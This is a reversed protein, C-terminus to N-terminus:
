SELSIHCRFLSYTPILISNQPFLCHFSSSFLIKFLASSNESHKWLPPQQIVMFASMFPCVFCSSLDSFFWPFQSLVILVCCQTKSCKASKLRSTFRKLILVNLKFIRWKDCRSENKEIMCMCGKVATISTKIDLSNGHISQCGIWREAAGIGQRSVWVHLSHHQKLVMLLMPFSQVLLSVFLEHHEKKNLYNWEERKWDSPDSLRELTACMENPPSSQTKCLTYHFGFKNGFFLYQQSLHPM